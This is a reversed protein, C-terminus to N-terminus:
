EVLRERLGQVEDYIRQLLNDKSLLDKDFSIKSHYQWIEQIDEIAVETDPYEPNYSVLRIHNPTTGKHVTKIRISEQEVIIAVEGDKIDEIKEIAKGLVWEGAKIHPYMSDGIVQFGRFTANRYEQLPLAFAPLQEIYGEDQLNGAYGAAAKANVLLINEHGVNDVTILKPTIDSRQPTLYKQKSEGYLWLPNINWKNFLEKVIFGSLKTRGREVDAITNGIGLAEAYAAQTLHLGERIERFRKAEISIEM